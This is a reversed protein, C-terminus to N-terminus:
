SKTVQIHTFENDFADAAFEIWDRYSLGVSSEEMGLLLAFEELLEDALNLGNEPAGLLEMFMDADAMEHASLEELLHIDPRKWYSPSPDERWATDDWVDEESDMDQEDVIEESAWEQDSDEFLEQRYAPDSIYENVLRGTDDYITYTFVEHDYVVAAVVFSALDSSLRIGLPDLLSPNTEVAEDYIVTWGKHTKSIMARGNRETTGDPVWHEACWELMLEEMRYRNSSQIYFNVTTAKM